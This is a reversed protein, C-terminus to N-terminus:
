EVWGVTSVVDGTGMQESSMETVTERPVGPAVTVQSVGLAESWDPVAVM